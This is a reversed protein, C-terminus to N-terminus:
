QLVSTNHSNFADNLASVNSSRSESAAIERVLLNSVVRGVKINRIRITIHGSIFTNAGIHDSGPLFNDGPSITHQISPSFNVCMPNTTELFDFSLV